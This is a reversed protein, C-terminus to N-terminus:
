GAPNCNEYTAEIEFAEFHVSRWGLCARWVNPKL